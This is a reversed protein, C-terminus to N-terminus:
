TQDSAERDDSPNVEPKAHDSLMSIGYRITAYSSMLVPPIFVFNVIYQMNEPIFPVFFVLALAIVFLVTSTKGYWKSHVVIKKKRMFYIGGFIMLLEKVIIFLVVWLPLRNILFMMFATTFQFLKDVFPDYIKGFESIQHYTRAIYGDLADTLWIAVFFAFALMGFLPASKDRRGSEFIFLAMFPIAAFRITTLINPITWTFRLRM